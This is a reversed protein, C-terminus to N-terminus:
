QPGDIGAHRRPIFQVRLILKNGESRSLAALEHYANAYLLISGRDWVVGPGIAGVQESSAKIAQNNIEPATVQKFLYGNAGLWVGHTLNYAATANFHVAQGAQSSHAGNGLAPDHNVGNYLYHTRWSTEVKRTPFFSFAYYPHVTYAHGSLSVPIDARYEGVPVEFDVVFRQNWQTGGRKLARWQLVLPSLTLDGVGAVDGSAGANVHAAAVIAEAGWWAGLVKWRTVLVTHTLSSISNVAPVNQVPKGTGDNKISSHTGDGIQVLLFGPAGLADLFSTDGLNVAPEPLHPQQAYVRM